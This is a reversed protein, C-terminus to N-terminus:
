IQIPWLSLNGGGYVVWHNRIMKSATLSQHTNLCGLFCVEFTKEEKIKNKSYPPTSYYPLYFSNLCAVHSEQLYIKELSFLLNIRSSKM